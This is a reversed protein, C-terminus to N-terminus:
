ARVQQCQPSYFSSEHRTFYDLAPSKETTLFRLKSCVRLVFCKPIFSPIKYIFTPSDIRLTTHPQHFIHLVKITVRWQPLPKVSASKVHKLSLSACCCSPPPLHAETQQQIFHQLEPRDQLLLLYSVVRGSLFLYVVSVVSFSLYPIMENLMISISNM